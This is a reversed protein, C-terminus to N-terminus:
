KSDWNTRTMTVKAKRNYLKEKYWRGKFKKQPNFVYQDYDSVYYYAAAMRGNRYYQYAIYPFKPYNSSFVDVWRLHGMADYYYVNQVNNKYQIGYAILLKGRYFGCYYRDKDEKKGNSIQEYLNLYDKERWYDAYMNKFKKRPYKIATQETFLINQIEEIKEDRQLQTKSIWDFTVGAEIPKNPSDLVTESFAPLTCFAFFICLHLSAFICLKLSFNNLCEIKRGKLKRRM